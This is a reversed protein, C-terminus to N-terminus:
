NVQLIGIVGIENEDPDLLGFRDRDFERTLASLKIGGTRLKEFDNRPDTSGITFAMHSLASFRPTEFLCVNINDFSVAGVEQDLAPPKYAFRHLVVAGLRSEYWKVSRQLDRVPLFAGGLRIAGESGAHAEERWGAIGIPNGDPDSIKFCQMHHFPALAEVIEVGSGTMAGYAKEADYVNVNFPAEDYRNLEAQEVLTLCTGELFSLRAHREDRGLLRLGLVREYWPVSRKLNTVPVFVDVLKTFTM